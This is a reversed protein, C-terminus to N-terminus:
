RLIGEVEEMPLFHGMLPQSRDPRSQQWTAFLGDDLAIVDVYRSCGTGWPSVFLPQHPSLRTLPASRGQGGCLLGGLEECSYGRPRPVGQKSQTLERCCELGDYFYLFTPPMSAFAGISPVRVRATIRTGAVDWAPGREALAYTRVEFEWAGKERVALGTNSSSWTFPHSCFLLTTSGDNERYAKPDKVHLYGPEPAPRLVPKLAGADMAGPDPGEFADISWVGTGPKQYAEFGAPYSCTKETSVFLEWGADGELLCAGEVSIAQKDGLGLAQKGWSAVKEWPGDHSEARFIALELGREGAALGTRSDGANRYRGVLYLAGEKSHVTNGGGFWYGEAEAYPAVLVRAAHQDILRCALTGLREQAAKQTVKDHM